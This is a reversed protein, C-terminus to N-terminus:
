DKFVVGGFFSFCRGVPSRVGGSLAVGLPNMKARPSADLTGVHPSTRCLTFPVPSFGHSGKKLSFFQEPPM